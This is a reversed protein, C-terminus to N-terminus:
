SQTPYGSNTQAFSKFLQPATQWLSDYAGYPRQIGEVTITLEVPEGAIGNHFSNDTKYGENFITPTSGIEGLYYYYGDDGLIWHNEHQASNYDVNGNTALKNIVISLRESTNEFKVRVYVTKIDNTTGTAITTQVDSGTYLTDPALALNEFNFNTNVELNITGVIVINPEGTSTTSEDMFYATTVRYSLVTLGLAFLVALAIRCVKLINESSKRPKHLMGDGKKSKQM